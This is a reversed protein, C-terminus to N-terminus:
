IPWVYELDSPETWGYKEYYEPSKRILNSRHSAHFDDRRLWLPMKIDGLPVMMEGFSSLPNPQWKADYPEVMTNIYGRQEWEKICLTMYLGLAPEYGRWMKVAPHNIWGGGNRLANLIQLCEKRQCGLRARDLVHASHSFSPLPLFTQLTGTEM